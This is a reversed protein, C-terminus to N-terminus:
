VEQVSLSPDHKVTFNCSNSIFCMKHAEQHLERAKDMPQDHALTVVPKLIVEKFRGSGDKSEEMVGEALDVYGTVIINNVSCLHLYWLMHCSSLSAVLLEEPNYRTKDGLFAPDSSGPLTETKATGSILHDRSYARYDLTGAGQNGTWEVKIQYNHEKM